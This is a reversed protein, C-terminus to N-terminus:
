VIVYLNRDVIIDAFFTSCTTAAPILLFLCHPGMNFKHFSKFLSHSKANDSALKDLLGWNLYLCGSMKDETRKQRLLHLKSNTICWRLVRLPLEYTALYDTVASESAIEVKNTFTHITRLM